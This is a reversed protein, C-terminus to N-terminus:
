KMGGFRFSFGASMFYPFGFAMEANVALFSLFYYRVGFVAQFTPGKKFHRKDILEVSTASANFKWSSYGIRFGFYPDVDDNSGLHLLTRIGYNNRQVRFDFDGVYVSDMLTDTYGSWSASAVQIFYCGGISIRDTLGFDIIGSFAPTVRTDLGTIAYDAVKLSIRLASGVLSFAGDTSVVFEGKYKQAPCQIATVAVLCAVGFAILAKKM